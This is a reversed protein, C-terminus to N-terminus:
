YAHICADAFAQPDDRIIIGSWRVDGLGEAGIRTSVIPKGYAAAELIKVRTGSGSLIPVCVVRTQRYLADLDDVFGTFSVGDAGNPYDSINEPKAGAIFLKAAPAKAQIIPWIKRILFKAADVNPKYSYSGLFLLNPEPTIEQIPPLAISNPIKVLGQSRWRNKLYELDHDSCVFTRQASHIAQREGRCLAPYLLLHSLRSRMDPFYRLRRKLAVHEIDDLDFFVPPLKERTLLFPIMSGLRHVLVADPKNALCAEIAKLQACGATRAYVPQRFISFAGGAYSMTKAVLGNDPRLPCLFLRVPVRFHDAVARQFHAVAAPSTDITPVVFYLLDIQAIDHIAELFTHFRKFTGHVM